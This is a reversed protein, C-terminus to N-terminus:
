PVQDVRLAVPVLEAHAFAAPDDAVVRLRVVRSLPARADTRAVLAGSSTLTRVAADPSIVDVALHNSAPVMWIENGDRAEASLQVTIQREMPSIIQSSLLQVTARANYQVSPIVTATVLM